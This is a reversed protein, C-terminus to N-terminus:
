ASNSHCEGSSSKLLRMYYEDFPRAM